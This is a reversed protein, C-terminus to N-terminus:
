RHGDTLSEAESSEIVKRYVDEYQRTMRTVSFNTRVHERCAHRDLAAALQVQRALEDIDKGIFGTRGDVVLERIVGTDYGVIPTGVAMSEITVLGFPEPLMTPLLTAQARALLRMKEPYNLEGVFEVSSGDIHPEVQQTFYDRDADKVRGAIKLPLGARKAIEIAVHAGKEPRLRGLFALYSPSASAARFPTRSTNIGHHITALYNLTPLRSRQSDSIAVFPQGAFRMFLPTNDNNFFCHITHVVPTPSDALALLGLCGTNAHIHSHIVDFEAARDLVQRMQLMRLAEPESIPSTHNLARPSAPVLGTVTSDGSAFVTVQHRRQTLEETLDAVLTEVGGYRPPPVPEWLPAVQAIRM